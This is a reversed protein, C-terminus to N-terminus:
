CHKERAFNMRLDIWSDFNRRTTSKIRKDSRYIKLGWFVDEATSNALQGSFISTMNEFFRKVLQKEIINRSEAQIFWDLSHIMRILERHPNSQKPSGEHKKLKKTEGSITIRHEAM